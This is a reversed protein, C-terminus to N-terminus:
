YDMISYQYRAGYEIDVLELTFIENENMTKNILDLIKKKRNTKLDGEIIENNSIFVNNNIYQSLIFLQEYYDIRRNELLENICARYEKNSTFILKNM